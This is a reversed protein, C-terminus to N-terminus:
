CDLILHGQSLKWVRDVKEVGTLRHVILIVTRNISIRNLTQFFEAETDTDLGTTPEDLLLVPAQFLLTRALAIRRAQGGSVKTGGEGLWTDLGDPMERVFGAIAAESLAQWLEAETAEPNGLLLNNRITDDFLHTNQSLWAVRKRLSDTRLVSLDRGGFTISGQQPKIVKLLLAALTSKGVGSPGLIAIREGQSVTLDLGQYLWPRDHGWRFAVNRFCIDGQLPAEETEKVTEVEQYGQNVTVVRIAANAIQGALGGARSLPMVTEFAMLTLFLCFVSHFGNLGEFGIHLGAMLVLLIAVRNSLFALFSIFAVEKAQDMQERFFLSEKKHISQEMRQEAGFARIERLGHIFDLVSIRLRAQDLVLRKGRKRTVFGAFFPCLFASVGYCIAICFALVGNLRALLITLVFFTLISGAFPLVLRLYLGDLTEIDSVLRSLVDGSHRFGLGAAAGKALNRFFWIRLDALAHFMANHTYLREVYRMVLRGAGILKLWVSSVVVIGMATLAVKGGAISMLALGLVLAILSLVVGTLLSVLRPRWIGLIQLLAMKVSPEQRTNEQIDIM